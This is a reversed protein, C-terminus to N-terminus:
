DSGGSNDWGIAELRLDVDFPCGYPLGDLTISTDATISTIRGLPCHYGYITQTPNLAQPEFLNPSDARTRVSMGVVLGSTDDLAITGRSLKTGDQAIQLADGSAVAVTTWGPSAKPNTNYVASPNRTRCHELVLGEDEVAWAVPAYDGMPDNDWQCARFWTRAATKSVNNITFPKQGGSVRFTCSDFTTTHWTTLHYEVDPVNVATSAAPGALEFNCGSFLLSNRSSNAGTGLKGLSATSEVHINRFHANQGHNLNFAYRSGGITLDGMFPPNGTNGSPGVYEDDVAIFSGYMSGGDVLTAREQSQGSTLHITNYRWACKTFRTRENNQVVDTGGIGPGPSSMSVGVVGGFLACGILQTESSGRPTTLSPGGYFDEFGPYCNAIDNGPYEDMFPDIAIVCCPSYRNTRAGPTVWDDFTPNEHIGALVDTLNAEAKPNGTSILTLGELQVGRGGQVIMVPLQEPNTGELQIQAGTLSLPWEGKVGSCHTLSTIYASCFTGATGGIVRLPVLTKFILGAPVLVCSWEGPNEVFLDIADQIPAGGGSDYPEANVYAGGIRNLDRTVDLAYAQQASRRGNAGTYRITM